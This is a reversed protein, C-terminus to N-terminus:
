EATLRHLLKRFRKRNIRVLFIAAIVGGVSALLWVPLVFFTTSGTLASGNQGYTAVTTATYFGILGKGDWTTIVQRTAGPFVNAQRLPVEAVKQGFTNTITIKGVPAIHVTGENKSRFVFDIPGSQYTRSPTRFSELTIKETANGSVRLLILSALRSQVAAGNGQLVGEGASQINISAFHGGPEATKPIRITFGIVQESNAPVTFTEPSVTVWQALSFNTRAEAPDVFDVQGQDGVAVFDEVKANYTIPQSGENRIRLRDSLSDGPNGSLELKPPILTQTEAYAPTTAFPLLVLALAPLFLVLRNLAHTLM